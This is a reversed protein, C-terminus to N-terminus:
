IKEPELLLEPYIEKIWGYKYKILVDKINHINNAIYNRNHEIISDIFSEYSRENGSISNRIYKIILEPHNSAL